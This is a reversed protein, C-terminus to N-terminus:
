SVSDMLYLPIVTRHPSISPINHTALSFGEHPVGPSGTKKTAIFGSVSTSIMQYSVGQKIIVCTKFHALSHYSTNQHIIAQNRRYLRQGKYFLHRNLRWISVDTNDKNKIMSAWKMSRWFPMITNWSSKGNFLNVSLDICQHLRQYCISVHCTVLM